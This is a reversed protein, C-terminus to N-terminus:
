YGFLEFESAFWYPGDYKTVPVTCYGGGSEMVCFRLYKVPNEARYPEDDSGFSAAVGNGNILENMDEIVAFPKSPWNDRNNTGYLHVTKIRGNASDSKRNTINFRFMSMESPLTIELYSGFVADREHGDISYTSHFYTDTKGDFLYEIKGELPEVDNSTVMDATLTVKKLEVVDVLRVTYIVSINPDVSFDNAGPAISADDWQVPLNPDLTVAVAYTKMVEMNDLFIQLDISASTTGEALHYSPKLEYMSAPMPILATGNATNYDAILQDNAVTNITFGWRNQCPISFKGEPRYINKGNPSLTKNNVNRAQVGSVDLTLVSPILNLCVLSISKDSSVTDTSSVLQVPICPTNTGMTAANNDMWAKLKQPNIYLVAKEYKDEKGNFEYKVSYVNSGDAPSFSYCESGVATYLLNGSSQKYANFEADTMTKITAEASKEPDYGGKMVVFTDTAVADTTYITLNRQGADRLAFVSDFAEPYVTYEDCSTTALALLALLGSAFYIKKM